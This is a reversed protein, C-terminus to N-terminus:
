GPDLAGKHLVKRLVLDEVQFRRPKVKSNFYRATRCQYAVLRLQSYCRKEELFDLKRQQLIFDQESDNERRLSRARIEVPVMAEYGYAISFPTEGTTTRATTRYVWLLKLLEDAWQGKLDELKM